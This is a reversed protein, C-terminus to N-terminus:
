VEVWEGAPTGMAKPFEEGMYILTDTYTILGSAELEHLARRMTRDTVCGKFVKTLKQRSLSIGKAEAATGARKRAEAVGWQAELYVGIYAKIDIVGLCALADLRTTQM